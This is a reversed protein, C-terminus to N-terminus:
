HLLPKNRRWIIVPADPPNSMVTILMEARLRPLATFADFLAESGKANVPISLVRGEADTLAWSPTPYSSPDFGLEELAEVDMIGGDLPGFYSIRRERIQVVGPGDGEQAFRVRQVGAFGWAIGVAGIAYGLAATIGVGGWALWLGFILVACAALVERWRWFLARVEPRLFDAM